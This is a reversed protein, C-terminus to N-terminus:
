GSCIPELIKGLYPVQTDPSVMTWSTSVNPSVIAADIAGQALAKVGKRVSEFSAKTGDDKDFSDELGDLARRRDRELERTNRDHFRDLLHRSEALILGFCAEGVADLRRLDDRHGRSKESKESATALSAALGKAGDELLTEMQTSTVTTQVCDVGAALSDAEAKQWTRALDQTVDRVREAFKRPDREGQALILDECADAAAALKRAVCRDTPYLPEAPRPPSAAFASSSLSLLMAALAIRGIRFRLVVQAPMPGGGAILELVGRQRSKQAKAQASGGEPDLMRKRRPLTTPISLAPGAPADGPESPLRGHQKEDEKPALKEEDDRDHAHGDPHETAPAVEVRTRGRARRPRRPTERERARLEYEQASAFRPSRTRRLARSQPARRM